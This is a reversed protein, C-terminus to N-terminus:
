GVELAYQYVESNDFGALYMDTGDPHFFVGRPEVTQGSIDFFNGSFQASSLIFPDALDYEYVRDDDSGSIYMKHGDSRLYLGVSGADQIDVAFYDDPSSATSIDFPTSLVFRYVTSTDLGVMFIEVGDSRLHLAMPSIDYPSVDFSKSAYSSNMILWANAESMDYQYITSNDLGSMYFHRGDFSFTLGVPSGDESSVSKKQNLGSTVIDWASAMNYKYISKTDAGVTYFSVGNDRFTIDSPVSNKTSVDYSKSAYSATDIKWGTSLTYQFVTTATQAGLYMITGNSNFNISGWFDSQSSADFSLGSYAFVGSLDWATTLTYQYVTDNTNGIVYMKTGDSSFTLGTAAAEEANVSQGAGDSASGVDWPTSLPFQYVNTTGGMVYMVTGDSKFTLDRISSHVGSTDYSDDFSATSVDWAVGLDFQYVNKNSSAGLAYMVTGDSSFSLGSVINNGTTASIDIFKSEYSATSIDYATSLSHQFVVGITSDGAFLTGGSNGLFFCNFLTLESATSTASTFDAGLLNWPEAEPIAEKEAWYDKFGQGAVDPLLDHGADIPQRASLLGTPPIVRYRQKQYNPRDAYPRVLQTPRGKDDTRDTVDDVSAETPKRMLESYSKDTRYTQVGFEKNILNRRNRFTGM